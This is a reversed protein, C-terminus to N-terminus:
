GVSGSGAATDARGPRPRRTEPEVTAAAARSIEAPQKPEVEKQEPAQDDAQAGPAPDGEPTRQDAQSRRAMRSRCRHAMDSGIYKAQSSQLRPKKLREM